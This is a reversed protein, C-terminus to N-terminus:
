ISRRHTEILGSFTSSDRFSCRAIEGIQQRTLNGSIHCSNQESVTGKIGLEIDSAHMCSRWADSTRWIRGPPLYNQHQLMHITNCCYTTQDNSTSIVLQIIQFHKPTVFSSLKIQCGVQVLGCILMHIRRPSAIQAYEIGKQHLAIVVALQSKPSNSVLIYGRM